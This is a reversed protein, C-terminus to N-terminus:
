EKSRGRLEPHIELRHVIECLRSLLAPFLYRLVHARAGSLATRQSSLLPRAHAFRSLEGRASIAITRGDELIRVADRREFTVFDLAHTQALRHRQLLP